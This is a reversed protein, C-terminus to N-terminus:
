FVGSNQKQRLRNRLMIATLNLLLVIMLLVLTATFVMPKTAESNQSQFGLTYIQFGLHMFSRSGHLFPAEADLPLDVASPLAGVLMLPAVEGAGRAMALIMGTLIGPRALPLVITRITQWRSAGCAFAGERLSNPVAAIAEETAVIVVPLTLLALTLSAWLLGGKGFTPNPLSAQYFGQFYPNKVILLLVGAACGLWILNTVARLMRHSASQKESTWLQLWFATIGSVALLVLGAFWRMPPWTAIGIRASGGDIWAGLTYCFFALGFVGYVISPVGALNNICIRILSVLWGSKAYERLYLAAMVGFPVGVITMIMTMVITGWIAPFLGGESNAERPNSSVLEWWRDGYVKWKEIASLANPRFGRVIEAMSVEHLPLLSATAGKNETAKSYWLYRTGIAPHKGTWWSGRDGFRGGEWRWLARDAGPIEQSLWSGEQDSELWRDPTTKAEPLSKLQQPISWTVLQENQASLAVELADQITSSEIQGSVLRKLYVEVVRRDEADADPLTAWFGAQLGNWKEVEASRASDLWQLCDELIPALRDALSPDIALQKLLSIGHDIKQHKAAFAGAAQELEGLRPLLNKRHDIEHQRLELRAKEIRSDIRSIAKQLSEGEAVHRHSRQLWSAFRLDFDKGADLWAVLQAPSTEFLRADGSWTTLSGDAQQQCILYGEERRQDIWQVLGNQLSKQQHDELIQRLMSPPATESEAEISKVAELCHSLQQAMSDPFRPAHWVMRTPFAFLRGMKRRELAWANVPRWAEKLDSDSDSVYTFHRNTWEFNGTRLYLRRGSSFDTETAAMPQGDQGIQLTAEGRSREEGQLKGLILEGNNTPVMLLPKPWFNRMGQWALLTLLGVIMAVCLALTGGTLWIWVEGEAKLGPRPRPTRPNTATM